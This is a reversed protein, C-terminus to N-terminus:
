PLPINILSSSFPTKPCLDSLECRPLWSVHLWLSKSILNLPLSFCFKLTYPPVTWPEWFTESIEGVNLDWSALVPSVLSVSPFFFRFCVVFVLVCFWFYLFSIPWEVITGVKATWQPVKFFFFISGNSISTKVWNTEPPFGASTM